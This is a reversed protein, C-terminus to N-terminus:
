PTHTAAKSVWQVDMFFHKVTGAEGKCPTYGEPAESAPGNWYRRAPGFDEDHVSWSRDMGVLVQWRKSHTNFSIEGAIGTQGPALAERYHHWGGGLESPRDSDIVVRDGPEYDIGLQAMAWDRIAHLTDIEAQLQQLNLSKLATVADALAAM